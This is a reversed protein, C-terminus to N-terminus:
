FKAVFFPEGTFKFIESLLSLQVALLVVGSVELAFGKEYTRSNEREVLCKLNTIKKLSKVFYQENKIALLFLTVYM